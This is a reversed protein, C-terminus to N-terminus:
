TSSAVENKSRGDLADRRGGLRRTGATAAVPRPSSREVFPSANGARESLACWAQRNIKGAGAWNYETPAPSAEM